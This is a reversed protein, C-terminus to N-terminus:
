SNEANIFVEPNIGPEPFRKTELWRNSEIRAVADIDLTPREVVVQLLLVAGGVAAFDLGLVENQQLDEPADLSGLLKRQSNM